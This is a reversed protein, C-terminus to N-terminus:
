RARRSTTSSSRCREDGQRGGRFARLPRAADAQQLLAHRGAGRRRRGGRRVQVLGVAEETNNSGAGAVVPVRGKATEICTKVVQRHEDHSLTPSEGTTGVPVLGSTGEDIQWDVFARFAKEDFRGGNKDFPTVLATLSGRLM